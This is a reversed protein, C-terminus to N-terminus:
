DRETGSRDSEGEVAARDASEIKDLLAATGPEVLAVDRWGLGRLSDAIRPHMTVAPCSRLAELGRDEDALAALREAADVTTVVLCPLPSAQRLWRALVEAAAPTAVLPKRRYAELVSVQAGRRALETEIRTNGGVARVLLIRESSPTALAPMALLAEADFVPGGPMALLPHQDLGHRALSDRSGPGVVVPAVAPPWGLGMGALTEFVVEIATPSVFVVRDFRALGALQAAAPQEGTASEVASFPLALVEHGRAQLSQAVGHVRPEPLSLVIRRVSISM